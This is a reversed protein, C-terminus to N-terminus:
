INLSVSWLKQLNAVKTYGESSPVVGLNTPAAGPMASIAGANHTYRVDVELKAPKIKSSEWHFEPEKGLEKSPTV